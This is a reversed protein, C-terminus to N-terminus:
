FPSEITFLQSIKLHAIKFFLRWIQDAMKFKVITCVFFGILIIYGEFNQHFSSNRQLHVLIVWKTGRGCRKRVSKTGNGIAALSFLNKGLLDFTGSKSGAGSRSPQM